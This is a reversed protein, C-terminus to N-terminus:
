RCFILYNVYFPLKMFEIFILKVSSFVPLSCKFLGLGNLRLERHARQISLVLLIQQKVSLRYWASSYFLHSISLLDSTIWEALYFLAFTMGIIISMDIFAVVMELNISENLEVVLLNMTIVVVCTFTMNFLVVKM